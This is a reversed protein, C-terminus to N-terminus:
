NSQENVYSYPSFKMNVEMDAKFYPTMAVDMANDMNIVRDLMM